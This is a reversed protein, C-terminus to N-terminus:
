VQRKEEGELLRRYTLIEKELSMKVSMLRKYEALHRKMEQTAYDLENGLRGVRAQYRQAELEYRKEVDALNRELYENQM